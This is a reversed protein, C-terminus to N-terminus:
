FDTNLQKFKTTLSTENTKEHMHAHTRENTRAHTRANTGENIRAHTRANAREHRQKNHMHAHIRENKGKKMICLM